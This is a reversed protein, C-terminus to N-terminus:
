ISTTGQLTQIEIGKKFINLGSKEDKQQGYTSVVKGKMPWPLSKPRIRVQVMRKKEDMAQEMKERGQFQSIMKEIEVEAVKIKRYEELQQMHEAHKESTIDQRIKQHFHIL